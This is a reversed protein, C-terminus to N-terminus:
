RTTARTATLTNTAISGVLTDGGGGGNVNEVDSAVNDM